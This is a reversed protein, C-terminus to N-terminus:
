ARTILRSSVCAEVAEDLDADELIIYADSGGLELVTKKINEGAQKAVASGAPGSGTLTVAKIKPHSIISKVAKSSVLLTTFRFNRRAIVQSM